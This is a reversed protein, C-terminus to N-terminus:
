KVIPQNIKKAVLKEDLWGQRELAQKQLKLITLDYTTSRYEQLPTSM